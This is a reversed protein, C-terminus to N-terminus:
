LMVYLEICAEMSAKVAQRDLTSVLLSMGVGVLSLGIDRNTEKEKIEPVVHQLLYASVRQCGDTSEEDM